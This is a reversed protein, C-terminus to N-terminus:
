IIHKNIVVYRELEEELLKQRAQTRRRREELTSLHSSPVSSNSTSKPLPAAKAESQAVEAAAADPVEQTEGGIKKYAESLNKLSNERQM